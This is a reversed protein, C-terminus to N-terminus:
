TSFTCVLMGIIRGVCYGPVQVEETVIRPMDAIIKHILVEANQAAQPSGRIIV